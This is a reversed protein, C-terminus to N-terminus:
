VPPPPDDGALRADLYAKLAVANNHARDKAAFLLTIPGARALALVEAVAEPRADLAAWYARQFTDWKAPDHAFWRRLERSPALTKLWQDLRAEAKHVGRPWLADVLVRAGDDPSAPDHVRKVRIPDTM